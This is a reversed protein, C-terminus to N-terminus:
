ATCSWTNPQRNLAVKVNCHANTFSKDAGDLAKQELSFIRTLNASKISTYSRSYPLGVCMFCHENLLDVQFGLARKDHGTAAEAWRNVWRWRLMQGMPQDYRLDSHKYLVSVLLLKWCFDECHTHPKSLCLLLSPLQLPLKSLQLDSGLCSALYPAWSHRAHSYVNHLACFM